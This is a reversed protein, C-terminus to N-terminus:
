NCYYGDVIYIHATRCTGVTNISPITLVTAWSGNPTGGAFCGGYFGGGSRIYEPTTTGCERIKQDGTGENYIMFWYTTPCYVGDSDFSARYYDVQTGNPADAVKHNFWAGGTPCSGSPASTSNFTTDPVNSFSLTWTFAATGELGNDTTGGTVATARLIASYSGAAGGSNKPEFAVQVTCTAAAALTMGNCNDTGFSWKDPNTGALSITITSSIVGGTNRLTFTHTIPNNATGYNDPDPPNPSSAGVQWELVASALNFQVSNDTSTSAVNSNGAVDTVTTANISPIITGTATVTTARLTFNIDNGSNIIDWGTVTASGSHTIDATTFTGAIIPESFVVAFLVPTSSTPDAQGGDQNITLSPATTDIVVAEAAALTGVAPLTLTANNSTSDRLTGGNAELGATSNYDLDASTDGTQVTYRFTLTSTGTGSLYTAYRDTVGTELLWRPTGGGTNVTINDTFTVTLDITDTVNYSGNATTIAVSSVTPVVGDIVIAHAAALTGVAPLTLTANNSAADRLTGGNAELGSTSNYDLDSSTDGSQVTYRFTLTSTGTGSLYTAYRDTVGTELLWRPTGGGTNVTINETFTVTVDITSSIGYTGNGTSFAVSSVTPVNGDIVIAHAAALTGVAPLTLTANNGAADRLTGGNAELGSTSNYDLDSSTDASQVTYRFTLTSTGTGSLYTAYRDTVGTELLWRPTGGGTNVTVNETFTVTVDITNSVGYTGNGTSFAVSSVTPATTDIIVAEAAALTGVAPLTLTASNGVADQLTGGNAELGTTSNYDLDASTDGAQVTYQFTLTTTGSGSTYTAYRDTAGTELLWRPTGGGTAVTVNESFTVTLDIVDPVNYSGNATTIAVSSVTPVIADVVVAHAAALTGIAPLTLTADNSTADRITGGNAELGATTNYDLDASSDGVQVTYRFTLTTTGTGSIYTAYRDTTGTELLWRPTGGGTNVTVNENFTVTLDITDPNNYGGNASSFAVSSVAPAGTDILIAHAAALTGVAPLTLTATNGAADQLTGGNASLGATSNYDLDSSTDSAVVTYRFTLTTTGTGSLYTAYRDTAGTELLWRPTGGGTNVIINENFTVTLDVTNGTAYNGNATTFAVSSVTPAATDIRVAEAAALTGVAPLTVDADITSADRITGGNVSLSNTALYDLDANSDGAVVIYRFTLATTGTGGIYNAFRDTTGTELQLRPTGGGTNVTVVENFTITFDISAGTTYDGNATAIAISSVAPLSTDYTVTNDTASSINNSNGAPDTVLAIAISPILTGLGTVATARLTFTTDDGSNIITWTIGTATGNQTIDATTFTAPNINESFVVTFNIPLNATPDVQAAAQNIAVDPSTTDYVVTNDTSTSAFFNNGGVTQVLNALVSPIITGDSTTATASLTFNQDDGSNTILWTVGTATGSQTIDGVTFTAANIPQNFYVEFEIPLSNVEDSQLVDQNITIEPNIGNGILSVIKTGPTGESDFPVVLQDSFSGTVTPDFSIVIQCSDGVKLKQGTICTTAADLSFPPALQLASTSITGLDLSWEGTNTIAVTQAATSNVAITNFDMGGGSGLTGPATNIYGNLELKGEPQCAVAFVAITLLLVHKITKHGFIKM